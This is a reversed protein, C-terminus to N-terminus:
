SFASNDLLILKSVFAKIIFQSQSPIKQLFFTVFSSLQVLLVIPLIGKGHNFFFTRYM